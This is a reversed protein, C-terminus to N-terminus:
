EIDKDLRSRRRNIVTFIISLILLIPLAIWATFMLEIGNQGDSVYCITEANTFMPALGFQICIYEALNFLTLKTSLSQFKDDPLHYIYRIFAVPLVIGAISTISWIIKSATLCTLGISQFFLLIAVVGIATFGPMFIGAVIFKLTPALFDFKM